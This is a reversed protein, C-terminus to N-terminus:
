NRNQNHQHDNHNIDVAPRLQLRHRRESIAPVIDIVMAPDIIMVSTPTLIAPQPSRDNIVYFNRGAARINLKDFDIFVNCFGWIHLEERRNIHKILASFTM